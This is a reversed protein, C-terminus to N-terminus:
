SSERRNGCQKMTCWKRMRWSRKEAWRVGRERDVKIVESKRLIKERKRGIELLERDGADEGFTPTNVGVEVRLTKMKKAKRRESGYEPSIASSNRRKGSNIRSESTTTISPSALGPSPTLRSGSRAGATVTYGEGESGANASDPSVLVDRPRLRRGGNAIYGIEEESTDMDELTFAYTRVKKSCVSGRTITVLDGHRLPVSSAIQWTKFIKAAWGMTLDEGSEM